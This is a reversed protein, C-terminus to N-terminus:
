IGLANALKDLFTAEAESVRQGGIGLFGGTSAASVISAATDFLWRKFEVAEQPDSRRALVDAVQRCREITDPILDDVWQNSLHLAQEEGQGGQKYHDFVSQILPNHRNEMAVNALTTLGTVLERVSGLEGAPEVKVAAAVVRTPLEALLTWEVPTYDDRTSM